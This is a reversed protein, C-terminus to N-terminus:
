APVVRHGVGVAAAEALQQGGVLDLVDADRGVRRAPVAFDLAEDLREFV